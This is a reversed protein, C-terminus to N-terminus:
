GARVPVIGANRALTIAEARNTAGLKALIGSLNNSITKPALHLRRAIGATSMGTVLLELIQRERTTLEELPVRAQEASALLSAMRAAISAGFIAEGAAMSRIAHVIGADEVGRRLYGRVGARMAARVSDDDDRSALVLVATGPATRLIEQITAIGDDHLDVVVVDPRLRAVALVTDRGNATEAVLSIGHVTSLLRPLNRHELHEGALVVSVVFRDAGRM